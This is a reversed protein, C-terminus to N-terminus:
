VVSKRDTARPPDLGYQKVSQPNEDITKSTELSGFSSVLSSVAGQDAEMPEPAVIQWDNGSKKLRTVDGSAAKVEVEEIKSDDVTFVKTSKPTSPTDSTTEKKSEVFYAYAGIGLALILLVLFSKGGRM